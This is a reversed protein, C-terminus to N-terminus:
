LPLGHRPKYSVRSPCTRLEAKLRSKRDHTFLFAAYVRFELCGYDPGRNGQSVPWAGCINPISVAFSSALFAPLWGGLGSNEYGGKQACSNPVAGKRGIDRASISSSPQSAQSMM